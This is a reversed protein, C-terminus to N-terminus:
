NGQNYTVIADLVDESTVPQGQLNEDQNFRTIVDLVDQNGVDGDGDVDFRDSGDPTDGDGTGPDSVSRIAFVGVTGSVEYGVALLPTDVPSDEAAVFELGEPSFDGGRGPNEPDSLLDGFTVDYDRNANMGVFRPNEPVTIDYTYVVSGREIGVFAYTRGDVEGTTVSEVQPGGSENDYNASDFGEPYRQAFRRPIENGSDYLLEGSENWVSFSRAGFAYLDEYDGDGDTDGLQNTVELNGLATASRLESISDVQPYEELDFGDAGLTFSENGIVSEEFDRSDGENATIVYPDGGATYTAIADPQYMGRLPWSELNIGDASSTDLENGPLGFDKFGLGIVETVEVDAIDIKALANNEQLSVFATSSDETVAVYEPELDTAATPDADESAGYIRVGDERLEEERGNYQEFTARREIANEPGASVDIVSVSGAPDSDDGPEGENATLVTEADPTFTVMDPLAGVEVSGLQELSAADYFVVRGPAQEDQNAVAVAAVDDAVDISNTSGAGEFAESVDLITEQVPDSPESVDLVETQGASSNVVFLRQEAPYHAVIEAGGDFEGTEYRGIRELSVGDTAVLANAVRRDESATAVSGLLSSAAIGGTMGLVSRRSIDDFSVSVTDALVRM